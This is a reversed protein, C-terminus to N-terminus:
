PSVAFDFRGYQVQGHDPKATYTGRFTRASLVGRFRIEFDGLKGSLECWGDRNVGEMKGTGSLPPKTVLQAVLKEGDRTIALEAPASIEGTTNTVSGKLALAKPAAGRATAAAFSFMVLLFLRLLTKM